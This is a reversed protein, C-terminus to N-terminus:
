KNKRKRFTSPSCGFRLKFIKCFYSRSMIGIKYVVESVNLDTTLFLQEAYDLRKSRIYDTVTTGHMYKFGEQLKVPSLGTKKCLSKIDHQLDLNETIFESIKRVSQLENTKLNSDKKMIYIEKHFENMFQALTKQYNGKMDMIDLLGDSIGFPKTEYLSEALKLNKTCSYPYLYLEELASLVEETRSRKQDNSSLAEFEKFVINKDIYIISLRLSNSPKLSLYSKTEPQSGVISPCLEEIRFLNNKNNFKHYVIGETCYIFYLYDKHNNFLELTLAQRLLVDFELVKFGNDLKLFRIIGKGTTSKLHHDYIHRNVELDHLYDLALIQHTDISSFGIQTMSM